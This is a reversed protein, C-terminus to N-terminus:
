LNKLIADMNEESYEVESSYMRVVDEMDKGSQIFAVWVLPNFWHVCLAGFALIRVIHDGRRIHYREHM